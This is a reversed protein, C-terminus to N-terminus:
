KRRSRKFCRNTICVIVLEATLYLKFTSSKRFKYKCVRENGKRKRSKRHTDLIEQKSTENKDNLFSFKLYCRKALVVIFRM